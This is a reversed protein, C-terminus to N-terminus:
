GRVVVTGALREPLSQNLPSWVATLDTVAALLIPAACGPSPALRDRRFVEAMARPQAEGDAPHARRAADADALTTGPGERVRQKWPELLQSTVESWATRFAHRVLASRFSVPGGTRVDVRRLGMVRWGPSRWNRGRIELPALTVALLLRWRRSLGFARPAKSEEDGGPRRHAYLVGVAVAVGIVPVVFVFLDIVSAVARRWLPAIKLGGPGASVM